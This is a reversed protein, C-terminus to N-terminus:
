AKVGARWAATALWGISGGVFAGAIVDGLFHFNAGVLGAGVGLGAILYLPRFRPYWLWLVALVACSTAMHGSPFANFAGGGQMFRFEYLGDRIFSPNNGMWSEPWSRGFMFKLREKLVETVIVSTSCLFAAAQYGPLSRTMLARLGLMVFAAIAVPILPNPIHTLMKWWGDPSRQGPRHMFLAIPRDFWQYSILVMVATAFLGSFWGLVARM